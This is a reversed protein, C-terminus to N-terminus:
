AAGGALAFSLRAMGRRHGESVARGTGRDFVSVEAGARALTDVVRDLDAAPTGGMRDPLSLLRRWWPPPPADHVGDIGIVARVKQTRCLAAVRDLWPGPRPPVFLVFSAPGRQQVRQVFAPLGGGAEDPRVESSCILADLAERPDSVGGPSLDTGFTWDSGLLDREISLRAAAASADDDDGAVLFAAMRRAVSLAREPRRVMLKRTRGLVKWHIFRAPDGPAYRSLELRDGEDLGLPHPMADGSAFSSLTPLRRLGGIRPLVDAARRDKLRVSVRSVGFPDSVVILRQVYDHRGRDSATVHEHLAGEHREM